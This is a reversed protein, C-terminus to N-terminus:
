NLSSLLAIAGDKPRTNDKHVYGMISGDFM